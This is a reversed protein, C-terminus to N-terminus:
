RLGSVYSAVAKIELETLKSAVTHMVANDNTRERKKSCSSSANPTAACAPRGPAAADRHGPRTKATAPACAPVGSDVNGRLLSTAAWRPWNQIAVPHTSTPQKEFYAGLAPFHAPVLDAVMPQMTPSIRRGSKYDALQRAVYAAHQGALRPFLLARARARQEGHCM